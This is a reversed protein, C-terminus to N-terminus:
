VSFPLSCFKPLVMHRSRASERHIPCYIITDLLPKFIALPRLRKALSRSVDPPIPVVQQAPSPPALFARIATLLFLFATLACAILAGYSRPTVGYTLVGMFVSAIGMVLLFPGYCAVSVQASRILRDSFSDGARSVALQRLRLRLWFGSLAGFSLLVALLSWSKATLRELGSRLIVFDKMATQWQGASRLSEATLMRFDAERHFLRRALLERRKAGIKAGVDEAM